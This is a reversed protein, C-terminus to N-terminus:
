EASSTPSDCDWSPSMNLLLLSAKWMKSTRWPPIDFLSERLAGELSELLAFLRGPTGVFHRERDKISNYLRQYVRGASSVKWYSSFNPIIFITDADIYIPDSKKSQTHCLNRGSHILPTLVFFHVDGYCLCTNTATTKKYQVSLDPAWAILKEELDHYDIVRGAEISELYERAAEMVGIAPGEGNSHRIKLNRAEGEARASARLIGRTMSWLEKNLINSVM